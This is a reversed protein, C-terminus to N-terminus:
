PPSPWGITWIPSLWALVFAWGTPWTTLNETKGFIYVSDNRHGNMQTGIPLAIVTGLVLIMNVM